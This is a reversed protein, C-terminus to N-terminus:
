KKKERGEKRGEKREKKAKLVEFDGTQSGSMQRSCGLSHPFPCHIHSSVPQPHGCQLAQAPSGWRYLEAKHLAQVSKGTGAKYQIDLLFPVISKKKKKKRVIVCSAM